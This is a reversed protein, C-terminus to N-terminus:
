GILIIRHIMECYDVNLKRKPDLLQFNGQAGQPIALKM